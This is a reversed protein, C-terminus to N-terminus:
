RLRAPVVSRLREFALLCESGSAQLGAASNKGCSTGSATNHEEAM